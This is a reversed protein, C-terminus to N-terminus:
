RMQSRYSAIEDALKAAAEEAASTQLQPRLTELEKAVKELKSLGDVALSSTDVSSIAAARAAQRYQRFVSEAEEKLQAVQQEEGSTTSWPLSGHNLYHNVGYVGGVILLLLLIKKM